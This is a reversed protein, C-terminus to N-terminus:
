EGALILNSKSYVNAYSSLMQFYFRFTHPFVKGPRFNGQLFHSMNGLVSLGSVSSMNGFMGAGLISTINYITGKYFVVKRRKILIKTPKTRTIYM